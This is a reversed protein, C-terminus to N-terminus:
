AAGAPSRYVAPIAGATSFRSLAQQHKMVQQYGEDIGQAAKRFDTPLMGAIRVRVLVDAPGLRAIEERMQRQIYVTLM